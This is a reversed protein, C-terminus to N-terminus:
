INNSSFDSLGPSQSQSHVFVYILYILLNKRFDYFYIVPNRVFNNVSVCLFRQVM